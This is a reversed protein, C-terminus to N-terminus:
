AVSIARTAHTSPGCRSGVVHCPRFMRDQLGIRLLRMSLQGNEDCFISFGSNTKQSSPASTVALGGSKVMAPKRTLVDGGTASRLSALASRDNEEVASEKPAVAAVAIKKTLRLQFANYRHQLLSKISQSEIRALGSQYMQDADATRGANEYADAFTMYFRPHMVGIENEQMFKLVDIPNKCVAVFDLCVGLFREDDQYTPYSFFQRVCRELIESRDVTIDGRAKIDKAWALYEIWAVLPDAGGNSLVRGEFERTQSSYTLM